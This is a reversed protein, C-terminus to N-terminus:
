LKSLLPQRLLSVEVSPFSVDLIMGEDSEDANLELSTEKFAALNWLKCKIQMNQAARACAKHNLFDAVRIAVRVLPADIPLVDGSLLRRTTSNTVDTFRIVLNKAHPSSLSDGAGNSQLIFAILTDAHIKECDCGARASYLLSVSCLLPSCTVEVTGGSHLGTRLNVTSVRNISSGCADACLLHGSHLGWPVPAFKKCLKEYKQRETALVPVLAEAPDFFSPLPTNGEAQLVQRFFSRANSQLLVARRSSSLQLLRQCEKVLAKIPM